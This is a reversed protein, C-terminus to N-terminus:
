DVVALTDPDYVDLLADLDITVEGDEDPVAGGGDQGDQADDGDDMPQPDMDPVEDTPMDDLADALADHDIDPRPPFLDLMEDTLERAIEERRPEHATRRAELVRDRAWAFYERVDDPADQYGKVYGAFALQLLGEMLMNPKELGDVPPRRHGNSMLVDVVFAQSKRMGPFRRCRSWDIYQDEVINIIGGAVRPHEPYEEMFERKGTLTSERVHEVEHSITNVICRLEEPGSLNRGLSDHVDPNVVITGDPEAHNSKGFEVGLRDHDNFVATMDALMDRLPESPQM